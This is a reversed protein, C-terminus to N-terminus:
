KLEDLIMRSGEVNIGIIRLRFRYERDEIDKMTVIIM